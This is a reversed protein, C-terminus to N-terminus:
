KSESVEGIPVKSDLICNELNQIKTRLWERLNRRQVKYAVIDSMDVYVTILSEVPLIQSFVIDYCQVQLIHEPNPIFNKIQWAIFKTTKLDIIEKTRWDYMDLRGVVVAIKGSQLPIPYEVDLERWRYAYTLKHLLNGRAADWM